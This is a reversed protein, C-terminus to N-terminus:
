IHDKLEEKLKNYARIKQKLIYEDSKKESIEIPSDFNDKIIKITVIDGENLNNSDFPLWKVHEKTDSNLGSINLRVEQKDKNKRLVADIICSVVSHNDNFGAKCLLEDNLKVEFGKNNM